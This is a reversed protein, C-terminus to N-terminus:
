DPLFLFNSWKSFCWEHPTEFIISLTHDCKSNNPLFECDNSHFDTHHCNKKLTCIKCQDHWQLCYFAAQNSLSRQTFQAEFMVLSNAISMTYLSITFTLKVPVSFSMILPELTDEWLCFGLRVAYLLTLWSHFFCEILMYKRQNM